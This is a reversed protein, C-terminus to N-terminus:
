ASFPAPPAKGLGGAALPHGDESFLLGIYCAAGLAAQQAVRERVLGVDDFENLMVACGNRALAEAIVFGIDRRIWPARCGPRHRPM